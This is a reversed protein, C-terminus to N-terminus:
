QKQEQTNLQKDVSVQTVPLGQGSAWAMARYHGGLGLNDWAM